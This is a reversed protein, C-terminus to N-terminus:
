AKKILLNIESIGSTKISDFQNTIVRARINRLSLKFKNRLAVYFLTSPEYRILSNNDEPIPVASLINKRGKEGSHFSDVSLNLLEILYTNTNIIDQIDKTAIFTISSVAGEGGNILNDYGFFNAMELTPFDLSVAQPAFGVDGIVGLRDAEIETTTLKPQADLNYNEYHETFSGVDDPDPTLRLDAIRTHAENGFVMVFPLYKKETDATGYDYETSSLIIRGGQAHAKHAVLQLKGKTLEIIVWDNNGHAEATGQGTSPATTTAVFSNSDPLKIMYPSAPTGGDPQVRFDTNTRIGYAIDAPALLENNQIKELNTETAEILGIMFGTPEFTDGNKNNNMGRCKFRWIGCGQTFAYKYVGYANIDPNPQRNFIYGDTHNAGSGGGWDLNIVDDTHKRFNWFPSSITSSVGRYSILPLQRYDWEIKSNIGVQFVIKRGVAINKANAGAPLLVECGANFRNQSTRLLEVLTDRTWTGNPMRIITPDTMNILTSVGNKAENIELYPVQRNILTSQLAIESEEEIIIEEKFQADFIGNLGDETLPDTNLIVLRNSM